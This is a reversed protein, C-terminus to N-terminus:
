YILKTHMWGTLSRREQASAKVEHPFEDSLFCAFSGPMPAISIIEDGAQNYLVLEGGLSDNWTENLYFIFSLKRSSDKEAQDMHKQYHTGPPYFALHCEYQCLGLYFQSNVKDKLQDLFSFVSQFPEVPDLPDLWFTFDGRITEVRLKKDKNGVKAPSFESQHLNFFHNMKDLSASDLLAPLYCYGKVELDQIVKNLM